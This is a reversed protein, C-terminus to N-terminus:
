APYRIDPLLQTLFVNRAVMTRTGLRREAYWRQVNAVPVLYVCVTPFLTIDALIFGQISSLKAFFGIEEFCRGIGVQASPNFYVGRRTISRVEWRGGDPDSLDYGAGESTALQWGPHSWVLRREIIFSARRGDTMFARIDDSRVGFADALRECDFNIGFIHDM